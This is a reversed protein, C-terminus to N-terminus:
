RGAAVRVSRNEARIIYVGRVALPVAAAVGQYVRKGSADYVSVVEGAALGSVRLVGNDVYAKWGGAQPLTPIGVPPREAITFEKWVNAAEYMAKTGHPVHLNIDFVNFVERDIELPITWNVTVDKLSSCGNFAYNGITTVAEPLTISALSECGYFAQGGITTLSEPLTISALSTCVVFAGWEISTVSSPLTYSNGVKGGPYQVLTEKNKDFLVGDESSYAPNNPAVTIETLSSCGSFAPSEITTVAKPLTISTLNSCGSFAYYGIRDVAEPLTISALYECHYFAYDRIHNVSSPITYSNGVKGELYLVLAEKNKDFLVGDESSYAPNNPAVMIETLNGCGAFAV